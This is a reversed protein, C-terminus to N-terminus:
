ECIIPKGEPVMAWQLTTTSWPTVWFTTASLESFGKLSVTLTYKGPHVDTFQFRGDKDSKKSAIVNRTSGAAVLSVEVPPLVNGPYYNSIVGTLEPHGPQRAEYEPPRQAGCVGFTPMPMVSIAIPGIDRDAIELNEITAVSFGPFTAQLEYSGSPVRGFTFKGGEDATTELFRESSFLRVSARSVVAGLSDNVSGTLRADARCPSSAFLASVVLLFCSPVRAKM